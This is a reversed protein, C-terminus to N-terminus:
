QWVLPLTWVGGINRSFSLLDFLIRGECLEVWLHTYYFIPQITLDFLRKIAISYSCHELQIYNCNFVPRRRCSLGVICQTLIPTNSHDMENLITYVICYLLNITCILRRWWATCLIERFYLQVIISIQVYSVIDLVVDMYICM